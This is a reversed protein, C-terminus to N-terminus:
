GCPSVELRTVTNRSLVIKGRISVDRPAFFAVMGVVRMLDRVQLKVKPYAVRHESSRKASYVRWREGRAEGRAEGRM